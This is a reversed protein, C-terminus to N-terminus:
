PQVESRASISAFYQGDIVVGKGQDRLAEERLEECAQEYSLGAAKSKDGIADYTSYLYDLGTGDFSKRLRLAFILLEADNRVRHQPRQNQSQSDKLFPAKAKSTAEASRGQLDEGSSDKSEQLDVGSPSVLQRTQTASHGTQAAPTDHRNRQTDRGKNPESHVSVTTDSLHPTQYITFINALHNGRRKISIFGMARVEDIIRQVTRTSCHMLQALQKLSPACTISGSNEVITPAHWAMANLLLSRYMNPNHRCRKPIPPLQIGALFKQLPRTLPTKRVPRDADSV